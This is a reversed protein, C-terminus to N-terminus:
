DSQSPDAQSPERLNRTRVAVVGDSTIALSQGRVTLRVVATQAVEDPVSGLVAAVTEADVAPYLPPGFTTDDPLRSVSGGEPLDVTAPACAGGDDAVTGDEGATSDDRAPTEGNRVRCLAKVLTVDLETAGDWDHRGVTRWGPGFDHGSPLGEPDTSGSM